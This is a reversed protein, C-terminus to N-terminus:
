PEFKLTTTKSVNLTAKAGLILSRNDPQHGAPFDLCIPYEFERVTDLIIEYASQGFDEEKDPIETFSGAILGALKDLKGARKLTQMMRDIRYLQEGVEEIFLIKGRTDIDSASGLLSCLIALNGGVIEATCKGKVSLPHTPIEYILEKGFLVDFLYGITTEMRDAVRFASAMPGHITEINFNQLIHSHFVTIDSFGIIWKPYKLFSSFDIRDIIRVSGYGGRACLIAKIDPDDLMQQFDSLRDKDEAAYNFYSKHLHSGVRVKLGRNELETVAAEINEFSIKGAPGAIGVLDGKRLYDPKVM